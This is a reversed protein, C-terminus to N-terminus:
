ESNRLLGRLARIARFFRVESTGRRIGLMAAIEAHSYGEIERLVFVVRLDVPLAALAEKLILEGVVGDKSEVSQVEMEEPEFKVERRRKSRRVRNVAAHTTVARLWSGFAGRDVYRRMALPLGVFVDQVLDEAEDDSGIIRCALRLLANAYRHYVADLADMDGSKLRQVLEADDPHSREPLTM